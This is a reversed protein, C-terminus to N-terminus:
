SIGYNLPIKTGVVLNQRPRKQYLQFLKKIETKAKWSGYKVVYKQSMAFIINDQSTLYLKGGFITCRISRLNGEGRMVSDQIFPILFIWSFNGM